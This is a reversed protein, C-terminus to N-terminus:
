RPGSENDVMGRSAFWAYAERVADLLPTPEFGLERRAKSSDARREALLFRAAEGSCTREAHPWVLPILRDAWTALFLVVGPPVHLRPPPRQTVRSFLMFLQDVNLYGSDFIYRQGPRGKEM